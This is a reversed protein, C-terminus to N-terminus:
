NIKLINTSVNFNNHAVQFQSTERQVVITNFVELVRAADRVRTLNPYKPVFVLRICPGTLAGMM